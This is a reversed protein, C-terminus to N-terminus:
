CDKYRSRCDITVLPPYSGTVYDSIVFCNLRHNSPFVSTDGEFSLVKGPNTKTGYKKIFDIKVFPRQNHLHFVKDYLVRYRKTPQAGLKYPSTFVTHRDNTWDGHELVDTLQLDTTSDYGINEVILVRVQQDNNKVFPNTGTTFSNEGKLLNMMFRQSMLTIKDGVRGDEDASTPGVRIFALKSVPSQAYIQEGNTATATYDMHKNEMTKRLLAEVRKVRSALKPVARRPKFLPVYKRFKKASKKVSSSRKRKPM